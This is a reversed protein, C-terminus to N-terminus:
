SRRLLLFACLTPEPMKTTRIDPKATILFLADFRTEFERWACDLTTYLRGLIATTMEGTLSSYRQRGVQPYFHLSYKHM